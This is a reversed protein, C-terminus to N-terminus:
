KRYTFFWFILPIPMIFLTTIGALESGIRPALERYLESCFVLWLCMFWRM